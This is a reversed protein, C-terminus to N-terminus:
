EAEPGRQGLAESRWGRRFNTVRDGQGPRIEGDQLAPDHPRGAPRRGRPDPQRRGEGADERHDAAGPGGADRDPGDGRGPDGARGPARRRHGRPPGPAPGRRGPLSGRGARHRERAGARQRAVLIEVALPSLSTVPKRTERAYRRLFFEALPEVDDPRDRLPPLPVEVVNLRYFLDERFRGARVEDRLTKNTAAIIRVDVRITEDGGVREFEREQLVRLLRIQFSPPLEGVEDIFLTGKDALEFRGKRQRVAGTFAGREHGFLESELVGEALAGCNLVVFPGDSRAGSFHISRAILEKGTGSEGTILVNADTQSVSAALEFVRRMKPSRGVIGQFDYHRSIEEQLYAKQELLRVRELAKGVVLTLEALAFPKALYDAAGRKMAEVASEVTGYATIMVVPVAADRERLRALVELGDMPAMVIDCVVLDFSGRDFLSLAEEGSAAAAVTYGQRGLAKSLMRRMGPEDDVVLLHGSARPGSLAEAGPDVAPPVQSM